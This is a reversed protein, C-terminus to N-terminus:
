AFLRDDFVAAIRAEGESSARPSPNRQRQVVREGRGGDSRLGAAKSLFSGPTRRRQQRKKAREREANARWWKKYYAKRKKPHAARWAKAAGRQSESTKCNKAPPSGSAEPLMIDVM